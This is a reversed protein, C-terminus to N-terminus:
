AMLRGSPSSFSKGDRYGSNRADSSGSTSISSSRAKNFSISEYEKVVLADKVLVLGWNNKNVQEKFQDKLGRIWGIMYDNKIASPSSVNKTKKLEKLYQSAGHKIADCAFEYTIKALEVDHELGLFVIRSGGYTRRAVWNYCRFNAGIVSALEKKYWPTTAEFKFDSRMVKKTTLVVDEHSDIESQSIGHEAMLRQAMLLATQAEEMSPNNTTKKLLLQIKRVIKSQDNSMQIVESESLIILTFKFKVM